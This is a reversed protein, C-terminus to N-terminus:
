PLYLMRLIRRVVVASTATPPTKAVSNKTHHIFPLFRVYFLAM